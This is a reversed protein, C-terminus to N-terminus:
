SKPPPGFPPTHKLFEALSVFQDCLVGFRSHQSFASCQLQGLTAGTLSATEGPRWLEPLSNLKEWGASSLYINRVEVTIHQGWFTEGLRDLAWQFHRGAWRQLHFLMSASMLLSPSHANPKMWFIAEQVASAGAGRALSNTWHHSLFSHWQRAVPM